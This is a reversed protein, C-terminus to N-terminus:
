SVIANFLTRCSKILSPAVRRWAALRIKDIAIAAFFWAAMTLIVLIFGVFGPLLAYAGTVSNCFHVMVAPATHLLFVAFVSRAVRNIRENHPIKLTTFWMILGLSAAVTLPNSYTCVTIRDPFFYYSITNLFTMFFYLALWSKGRSGRYYLRMYRALLYLGIFSFVSYGGAVSNNHGIFGWISQYLYFGTLLMRLQNRSMHSVAANLMPSLLFLGLYAKVFWGPSGLCLADFFNQWTFHTMGCASLILFSPIFFFAVQFLFQTLGRWSAKISFWGSILIFVNVCVLSLMEAVTRLIDSIAKGASLGDFTTPTRDFSVFNAHLALVMLMAVIRLLEM